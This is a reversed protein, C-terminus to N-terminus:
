FGGLTSADVYGQVGNPLCVEIGAVADGVLPVKVGEPVEISGTETTM